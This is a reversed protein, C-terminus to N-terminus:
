RSATDVSMMCCCNRVCFCCRLVIVVLYLITWRFGRSHMCYIERNGHTGGWVKEQHTCERTPSAHLASAKKQLEICISLAQRTGGLGVCEMECGGEHYGRM